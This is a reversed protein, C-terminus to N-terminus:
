GAEPAEDVPLWGVVQWGPGADIEVRRVRVRRKGDYRRQLIPEADTPSGRQSLGLGNAQTEGNM